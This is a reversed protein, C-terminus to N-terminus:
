MLIVTAYIGRRSSLAKEMHLVIQRVKYITQERLLWDDPADKMRGLIHLCFLHEVLACLLVADRVFPFSVKYPRTMMGYIWTGNDLGMHTCVNATLDFWFLAAKLLGMIDCGRNSKPMQTQDRGGSHSLSSLLYAPRSIAPTNMTVSLTRMHGGKKGWSLFLSPSSKERWQTEMMGNTHSAARDLTKQTMGWINDGWWIKWTREFLKLGRHIVSQEEPCNLGEAQMHQVLLGERKM